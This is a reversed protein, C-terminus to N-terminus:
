VSESGLVWGAEVGGVTLVDNGSLDGNESHPKAQFGVIRSDRKEPTPKQTRGLQVHILGSRGLASDPPNATTLLQM